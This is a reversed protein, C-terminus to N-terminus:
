IHILSLTNGACDTLRYTRTFSFGGNSYDACDASTQSDSVHTVTVENPSACNDAEDAVVTVDPAPVEEWCEVTIAAPNSGTPATTDDINITQVVDTTNGACDTLRYTRTFSFGGNAYDACDASTQSDSVHTVTITNPAACNDAEDTVM